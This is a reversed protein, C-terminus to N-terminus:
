LCVDVKMLRRRVQRILEAINAFSPEIGRLELFGFLIGLNMCALISIAGMEALPRFESTQPALMMLLAVVVGSALNRKRMSLYAFLCGLLWGLVLVYDM